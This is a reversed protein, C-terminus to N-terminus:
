YYESQFSRNTPVQGHWNSKHTWLLRSISPLSLQTLSLGKRFPTLIQLHLPQQQICDFQADISHSPDCGTNTVREVSFSVRKTGDASTQKGPSAQLRVLRIFDSEIEASNTRKHAMPGCREDQATAVGEGPGLISFYGWESVSRAVCRRELILMPRSEKSSSEPGSRASAEM